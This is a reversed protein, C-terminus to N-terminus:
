IEVGALHERQPWKVGSLGKLVLRWCSSSAVCYFLPVSLGLSSTSDRCPRPSSMCRLLSGLLVLNDKVRGMRSCFQSEHTSGTDELIAGEFGACLMDPM